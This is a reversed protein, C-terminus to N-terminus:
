EGLSELLKKWAKPDWEEMKSAALHQKARELLRKGEADEGRALYAYGLERCALGVWEGRETGPKEAHWREAWALVPRLWRMSEDVAGTERLAMGVAWDAALKNLEGGTKWHHVRAKRYCALAEKWDGRDQYTVGLNNWLPGLWGDFGGKEAAAIGKRAWEVQQEPTGTIAVMHAADVARDYLEHELCYAHMAQFTATAEALKKDQWEFRGRVGLYRSWAKPQKDTALAKAKALWPRGQEKLDRILYGRAVQAAAEAAIGPDEKAAEFARAYIGTAKEYERAGFARDGEALLDTATSAFILLLVPM